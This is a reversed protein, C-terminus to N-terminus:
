VLTDIIAGMMKDATKVVEASAKVQIESTKLEVAAQTLDGLADKETGAEPKMGVKVIDEAAKQANQLGSQIGSVGISLVSGVDSM